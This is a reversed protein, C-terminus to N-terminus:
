MWESAFRNFENRLDIFMRDETFYDEALQNYAMVTAEDVYTTTAKLEHQLLTKNTHIRHKLNDLYDRHIILQNQFYEVKESVEKGTNDGAIEELREQLFGLELEYFGLGRLWANHAFNLHKISINKM